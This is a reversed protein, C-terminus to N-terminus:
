LRTCASPDSAGACTFIVDDGRSARDCFSVAGRYTQDVEFWHSGCTSRDVVDKGRSQCWACYVRENCKNTVNVRISGACAGEDRALDFTVCDSLVHCGEPKGAAPVATGATALLSDTASTGGDGDGDADDRDRKKGTAVRAPEEVLALRKCAAHLKHRDCMSHLVAPVESPRTPEDRELSAVLAWGCKAANAEAECAPSSSLVFRGGTVNGRLSLLRAWEVCAEGAGLDCGEKYFATAHPLDGVNEYGKGAVICANERTIAYATSPRGECRNVWSADVTRPIAEGGCAGVLGMVICGIAAIRRM